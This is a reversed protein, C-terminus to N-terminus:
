GAREAPQRGPGGAYDHWAWSLARRAMVKLAHTRYGATGRVDDIPVAAAAVLAGFRDAVPGELEGPQDWMGRETLVGALFEEAAPARRPTPAASGIGTGV